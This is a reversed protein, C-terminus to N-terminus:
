GRYFTGVFKIAILILLFVLYGGLFYLAFRVMPTMKIRPVILRV